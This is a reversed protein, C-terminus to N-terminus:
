LRIIEDADEITHLNHTVVIITKGHTLLSALAQQVLEENEPDLSATAEDLLIIPADKLIARAISIRQRQGGSLSLGNEALVTDYGNPLKSIFDDCRAATAAAIAANRSADPNGVLINDIVSSNFLVVDQDVVSIYRSFSIGSIANIDKGDIKICGEDPKWLRSILKIITSKGCGSPGVIATIKGEPISFSLNNFVETDSSPYKFSVNEFEIYFHELDADPLTEEPMALMTNLRKLSESMYTLNSLDGLAEAFPEYIRLIAALFLLLLPLSLSSNTFLNAGVLICLGVGLQMITEAGVVFIGSTVELRTSIRSLAILDAELKHFQRGYLNYAKITPMGEIYELLTNSARHKAKIQIKSLSGQLRLSIAQILFAAPIVCFAALSMKLDLFSLIIFVVITSLFRSIVGPILGSMVVEVNACDSMIHSVLDGKNLASLYSMPVDILKRSVNRRLRDMEHYTPINNARDSLWFGLYNLLAIALGLIGLRAIYNMDPMSHDYLVPCVISEILLYIVIFPLFECISRFSSAIIGIRLSKIGDKTLPLNNRLYSM